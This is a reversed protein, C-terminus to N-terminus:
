LTTTWKDNWGLFLKDIGISLFTIPWIYAYKLSMQAVTGMKTDSNSHYIKCKFIPLCYYFYTTVGKCSIQHHNCKGQKNNTYWKIVKSAQIWLGLFISYLSHFEDESSNLAMSFSLILCCGKKFVFLTIFYTCYIDQSFIFQQETRNNIARWSVM